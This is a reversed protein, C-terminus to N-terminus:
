QSHVVPSKLYLKMYTTSAVSNYPIGGKPHFCFLLMFGKLLLAKLTQLKGVLIV